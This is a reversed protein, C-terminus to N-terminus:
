SISIHQRCASVPKGSILNNCIFFWTNELLYNILVDATSASENSLSVTLSVIGQRRLHAYKSSYFKWLMYFKLM